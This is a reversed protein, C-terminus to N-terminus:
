TEGSRTVARSLPDVDKVNDNCVRGSPTEIPTDVHRPTANQSAVSDTASLTDFYNKLGLVRPSNTNPPTLSLPQDCTSLYEMEVVMTSAISSNSNCNGCTAAASTVSATATAAVATCTPGSANACRESWIGATKQTNATAVELEGRQKEFVIRAGEVETMKGQLWCVTDVLEELRVRASEIAFLAEMVLGRGGRVMRARLFGGKKQAMCTRLGGVKVMLELNVFELFRSMKELDNRRTHADDLIRKQAQRAISEADLAEMDKEGVEATKSELWCVKDVWVEKCTTTLEFIQKELAANRSSLCENAGSLTAESAAMNSELQHYQRTAKCVTADLEEHLHHELEDFARECEDKEQQVEQLERELSNVRLQFVDKEMDFVKCIAVDHQQVQATMEEIKRKHRANSEELMTTYRAFDAQREGLNGERAAQLHVQLEEMTEALFQLEQQTASVQAELKQKEESLLSLQM